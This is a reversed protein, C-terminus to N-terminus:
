VLLSVCKASANAKYMECHQYMCLSKPHPHAQGSHVVSLQFSRSHSMPLLLLGVLLGHKRVFLQVGQRTLRLSNVHSYILWFAFLGLPIDRLERRACITESLLATVAFSGGTVGWRYPVLM